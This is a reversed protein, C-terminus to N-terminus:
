FHFHTLPFIRIDHEHQMAWLTLMNTMSSNIFELFGVADFATSDFQGYHNLHVHNMPAIYTAKIIRQGSASAIVNLFMRKSSISVQYERTRINALVTGSTAIRNARM